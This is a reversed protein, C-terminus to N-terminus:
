KGTYNAAIYEGAPTLFIYLTRKEPDSVADNKYSVVWEPRGSFTKQESQEVKSTIWSKDIVGREALSSVVRTASQEAQQQTVPEHSHGHDHGAGALSAGSLLAIVLSLIIAQINM